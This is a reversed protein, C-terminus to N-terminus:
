LVSWDIKNILSSNNPGLIVAALRTETFLQQALDTVDHVRVKNIERITEDLSVYKNLFLEHRALRNMRNSTSELGLMLNGKLQSKATDLQNRPLKENKLKKLEKLVLEVAQTVRQHASGLYIGLLGTDEYFEQFSYITYALGCQERVSQFLRSGMGGGLITNLLLLTFRSNDRFCATPMGICVHTQSTKRAMVKRVNRVPPVRRQPTHKEGNSSFDLQRCVLHVLKRHSVNGSAAVVVQPSQYHQRMYHVLDKRLLRSITDTRGMVPKGLPHGEWIQEAFLDHVLDAPSDQVDKIEEAIIRKEKEVDAPSMLSNNLIDALVNIATPLHEDLVKAYYCTQERSTFANMSGGVSELADAIQKATRKKTGKFCMHEIFHSIGNHKPLEDRSGVNIWIGISISRVQPIRETVVRLGNDLVTKRYISEM